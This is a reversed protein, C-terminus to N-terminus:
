KAEPKTEPKTEPAVENTTPAPEFYDGWNTRQEMEEQTAESIFRQDASTEWGGGLAKYLSILNTVVSSRIRALTNEEQLQTREADLVRLFDVAGERYQLFALEVSRRAATVANAQAAAAEQAKLFGVVADEVEQSAKLVSNQYGFLLQQFRADEIRVQNEFRGYNFFPWHIKPGLAFFLSAPNFLSVGSSEGGTTRQLGLTGYFVIRPYLDAKAIGIRESQSMAVLEASRIDPRRRLMEAPISVAVQTPAAPIVPPGQLLADVAGPNQGLLVSLANKSQVLNIELQPISARTNELLTRAQTVDLESTAGNRFRADAIQFGEEQVVVNRRAQEILVEFTRIVAYTRAVEANLSVIAQQYDAVSSLYAAQEAKVTRSFKSWFDAEWAVDFGLQFDWFDRDFDQNNAVNESLNVGSVSAFAAQLQPYRRGAAIGLSARAEMIRVGATRLDFNQSYALQILRELTPDNFAKWWATDAPPQAALQTSTNTKWSDNPQIEPKTYQPGVACGALTLTVVVLLSASAANLWGTNRNRM